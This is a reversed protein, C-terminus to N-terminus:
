RARQARGLNRSGSTLAKSRFMSCTIRYVTKAKNSSCFNKNKITPDVKCAKIKGAVCSTVSVSTSSGGSQKAFSATSLALTALVALSLVGTLGNNKTTKTM